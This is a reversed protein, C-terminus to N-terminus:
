CTSWILFFDSNELCPSRRASRRPCSLEQDKSRSFKWWSIYLSHKWLILCLSNSAEVMSFSITLRWAVSLPILVTLGELQRIWDILIDVEVCENSALTGRVYLM